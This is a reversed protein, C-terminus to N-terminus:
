GSSLASLSVFVVPPHSDYKIKNQGKLDQGTNDLKADYLKHQTILKERSTKIPSHNGNPSCNSCMTIGKRRGV